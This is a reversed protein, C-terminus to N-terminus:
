VRDCGPARRLTSYHSVGDCRGNKNDLVRRPTTTTLLTTTSTSRGAMAPHKNAPNEMFRTTYDPLTLHYRPTVTHRLRASAVLGPMQRGGLGVLTRDDGEGGVDRM